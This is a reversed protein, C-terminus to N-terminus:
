RTIIFKENIVMEGTQLQIIYTGPKINNTNINFQSDNNNQWVNRYIIRGFLDIIQYKVNSQIYKNLRINLRGYGPNPFLSVLDDTKIDNINNVGQAFIEEIDIPSIAHDYLYIDDLRGKFYFDQDPRAKGFVLDYFTSNITGSAPKFSDLQSDIYIEMDTGTYVMTIFYWQELEIRTKSDLDYVGEDTNITFRLLDDGISIKWRNDWNGHSIPYAEGGNVHESYIWASLSLSLDFNLWANNEVSVFSTSGNYYASLQENGIPDTQYSLNASSIINNYESLDDINENFPLYLVPNGKILQSLDRVMITVSDTSSGDMDSATCYVTYNGYSSPSTWQIMSGSGSFNGDDALWSYSINDGNLEEVECFIETTQNKDIKGPNAKLSSIEPISPIRDVVYIIINSSDSLGSGSNIKCKIVYDGLLSPAKVSLKSNAVIPVGNFEWFYEIVDNDIDEATCFVFVSDNTIVTSKIVQLAKIRPPNDSIDEGNDFDIVIGNAMTKKGTTEIIADSPVLTILVSNLAPILINISGIVDNYIFQNNISNYIGKSQSGINIIVSTDNEYPNWLLFSPYNESYFDTVSLNLKLIAIVNTTEVIAGLYGVHSSAYLALNTPAWGGSIADGTSFPSVDILVEKMSEHAICSELDNTLAWEESDQQNAPLFGPYFLRSANSMNLMWKGIANAYHENYRILPVLASAHQFGNMMFAYDNGADNAEGILGSCDYEGWQGVITGWGRLDGRNFCWNLMKDIDYNTGIEANMRAATYVGYPLQIEYSPNEDMSNLFEMAWEAGLLYKKENTECFANYLIWAIAGAAEPEKVGTTLPKMQNLNWARYNMYPIQWPIANGGMSDVAELWRDAVKVFQYNFDGTNPYLSNLQYFFINPMTEYWWDNGSSADSNNLYVNEEARRNFFDEAMLAWNIGSQNSKDIGSLTAGIIAPIYNIGEASNGLTQGVYSVMAASKHEPYNIAVPNIGVIPLYEGDLDVNFVFSDYNQAVQKWDRMLYPQPINPIQDIRDINIQQASLNGVCYVLVLISILYKM